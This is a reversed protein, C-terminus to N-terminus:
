SSNEFFVPDLLQNMLPFKTRLEASGLWLYPEPQRYIKATPAHKIITNFLTDIIQSLSQLAFKALEERKIQLQKAVIKAAENKIEEKAAKAGAIELAHIQTNKSPQSLEQAIEGLRNIVRELDPRAEPMKRLMLLIHSRLAPSCELVPPEWNLHQEKFQEFIPGQFPPTGMILTFAICGLSYIDTKEMVREQRWQEPAAYQPTLCDKLTNISTSEEVFRAIGFDAIKWKGDHYLINGPKLDRHVINPVEGLGYAIQQLIDIAVTEPFKGVRELEQQLSYEACPMVFFYGNSNADIGADLFPIIHKLDKHMLEQAIRIERHGAVDATIFLKKVAITGYQDNLGRFVSGFGGPKGLLKDPDYSWEGNPLLIKIMRFNEWQYIRPYSKFITQEKAQNYM